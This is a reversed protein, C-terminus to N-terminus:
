KTSKGGYIPTPHEISGSHEVSQQPMGDLYSWITKMAVIDGNLAMQLIKNGLAKKIEPKEDMMERITDTISYGKPPRGNPNGSQGKKFQTAPNSM